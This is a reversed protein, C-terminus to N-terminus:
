IYNVVGIHANNPTLLSTVDRMVITMSLIHFNNSLIHFNNTM